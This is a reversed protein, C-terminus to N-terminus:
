HKLIRWPIKGAPEDLCNPQLTDANSISLNGWLVGVKNDVSTLCPGSIDKSQNLECLLLNRLFKAHLEFQFNFDHSIM